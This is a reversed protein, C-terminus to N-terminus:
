EFALENDECESPDRYEACWEWTLGIRSFNRFNEDQGKVFINEADNDLICKVDSRYTLYEEETVRDLWFQDAIEIYEDPCTGPETKIAEFSEQQYSLFRGIEPALPPWVVYSIVM